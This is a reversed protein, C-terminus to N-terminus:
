PKGWGAVAVAEDPGWPSARHGPCGGAARSGAPATPDMSDAPDQGMVELGPLGRWEWLGPRLSRGARGKQLPASDRRPLHQAFVRTTEPV